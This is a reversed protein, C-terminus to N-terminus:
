LGLRSLMRTPSLVAFPNGVSLGSPSVCPWPSGSGAPSDLAAEKDKGAKHRQEEAKSLAEEAAVPPLLSKPLAAQLSAIRENRRRRRVRRLLSSFRDALHPAEQSSSLRTVESSLATRSANAANTRQLASRQEEREEKEEEAAEPPSALCAALSKEEEGNLIGSREGSLVWNASIAKDAEDQWRVPPASPLSASHARRVDTLCQHAHGAPVHLASELQVEQSVFHQAADLGQMLADVPFAHCVQSSRRSHKPTSRKSFPTFPGRQFELLNPVSTHKAKALPPLRSSGEETANSLCGASSSKKM